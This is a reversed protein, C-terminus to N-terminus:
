APPLSKIAALVLRAGDRDQIGASHVMVWLLLGMTDVVIHRKRGNIKKGADYGREGGQETTKVSQSDIIAASPTAHRGEASRVQERLTANIHTFLESDRWRDFYGYVTQWAPFDHPLM